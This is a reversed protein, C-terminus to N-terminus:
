KKFKDSPKTAKRKAASKKAQAELMRTRSGALEIGTTPLKSAFKRNDEMAKKTDERKALRKEKAGVQKKAKDAPINPNRWQKTDIRYATTTEDVKRPRTSGRAITKTMTKTTAKSKAGSAITKKKPKEILNPM